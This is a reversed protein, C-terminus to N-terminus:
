IEVEPMESPRKIDEVTKQTYNGEAEKMVQIRVATNRDDGDKEAKPERSFSHFTPKTMSFELRQIQKNSWLGPLHRRSNLILGVPIAFKTLLNELIVVRLMELTFVLHNPQFIALLYDLLVNNGYILFLLGVTQKLTLLNRQHNEVKNSLRKRKWYIGASTLIVFVMVISKSCFNNFRAKAFDEQVVTNGLM